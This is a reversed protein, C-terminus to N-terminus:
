IYPIRAQSKNKLPPPLYMPCNTTQQNTLFSCVLFQLLIVRVAADIDKELLPVLPLQVLAAPRALFPSPFPLGDM